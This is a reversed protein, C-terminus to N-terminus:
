LILTPTTEDVITAQVDPLDLTWSAQLKHTELALFRYLRHIANNNIVPSQETVVCVCVCVCVCLPLIFVIVETTCVKSLPLNPYSWM